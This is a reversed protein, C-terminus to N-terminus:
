SRASRKPQDGRSPNSQLYTGSKFYWGSGARDIEAKRVGNYFVQVRHDAAVITLDFVTGLRYDPDITVERRGDDYAAVLRHGELRVQM